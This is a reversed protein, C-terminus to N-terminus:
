PYQPFLQAFEPAADRNQNYTQVLMDYATKDGACAQDLLAQAGGGIVMKVQDIREQAHYLTSVNLGYDACAESFAAYTTFLGGGPARFDSAMNPNHSAQLMHRYEHRLVLTWADVSLANREDFPVFVCYPYCRESRIDIGEDPGATARLMREHLDQYVALDDGTSNESVIVLTMPLGDARLRVVAQGATSEGSDDVVIRPPTAPATPSQATATQVTPAQTTTTAAPTKPAPTTSTTTGTAGVAPANPSGAPKAASACGALVAALIVALILRLRKLTKGERVKGIGMGIEMMGHQFPFCLEWADDPQCLGGIALLM